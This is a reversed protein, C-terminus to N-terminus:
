KSLHAMWMVQYEAFVNPPDPSPRVLTGNTFQEMLSIKSKAFIISIDRSISTRQQLLWRFNMKGLDDTHLEGHLVNPLHTHIGKAAPRHILSSLHQIIWNRVNGRAYSENKHM